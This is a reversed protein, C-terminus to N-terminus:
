KTSNQEKDFPGIDEGYSGLYMERDHDWCNRCMKKGPAFDFLHPDRLEKSVNDCWGCEGGNEYEAMIMNIQHDSIDVMGIVEAPGLDCIDYKNPMGDYGYCEMYDDTTKNLDIVLKNDIIKLEFRQM